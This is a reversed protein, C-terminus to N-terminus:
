AFLDFFFDFHSDLFFPLYLSPFYEKVLNRHYVPVIETRFTRFLCTDLVKNTICFLCALETLLDFCIVHM